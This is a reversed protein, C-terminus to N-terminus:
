VTALRCGFQEIRSKEVKVGLGFSNPVEPSRGGFGFRLPHSVIDKRLLFDGFCGELFRPKGLHGLLHLSAASLLSTEGVQCGLQIGISNKRALRAIKLSHFLGGCKSIRINFIGCAQVDIIREADELDRLSEDSIIATQYRKTLHKLGEYDNAPLPQEVAEINLSYNQEIWDCAQQLNWAGNADVRLSTKRGVIVRVMAVNGENVAPGVKVKVAPFRWARTLLAMPFVSISSGSSIVMSFRNEAQKKPPSLCPQEFHKGFADLLALELACVCAGIYRGAEPFQEHMEEYLNECRRTVERFDSPAFDSLAPLFRQSLNEKVSDISEGTVYERPLSEGWGVTGDELVCKLLINDSRRRAARSHVFSMRFPIRLRYIEFSDIRM